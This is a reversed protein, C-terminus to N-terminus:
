ITEPCRIAGIQPIWNLWRRLSFGCIPQSETSLNIIWPLITPESVLLLCVIVLIGHHHTTSILQRYHHIHFTITYYTFCHWIDYEHYIYTIRLDQQIGDLSMMDSLRGDHGMIDWGIRESHQICSQIWTRAMSWYIRSYDTCCCSLWKRENLTVKSEKLWGPHHM